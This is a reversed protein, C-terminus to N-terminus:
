SRMQPREVALDAPGRDIWFQHDPHQDDTIAEANAGLTPEALLHMEVEGIAPEAPEIQFAVDGIVGGERLVPVAAKAVAIQQALQKLRRHASADLFSQDATLAKGDIRAEDPCICILLARCFCRFLDVPLRHRRGTARDLFIEVRQVISRPTRRVLHLRLEHRLGVRRCLPGSRQLPM